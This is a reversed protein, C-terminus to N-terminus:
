LHILQSALWYAVGGLQSLWLMFRKTWPLGRYIGSLLLEEDPHKILYLAFSTGHISWDLDGVWLLMMILRKQNKLCAYDMLSKGKQNLTNPSLGKEFALLLLQEDYNKTIYDIFDQDHISWDIKGSQLLVQFMRRDQREQALMFLTKGDHSKQDVPFENELATALFEYEGTDSVYDVLDKTDLNNWDLDGPLNQADKEFFDDNGIGKFSLDPHNLVPELLKQLRQNKLAARGNSMGGRTILSPSLNGLRSNEFSQSNRRSSLPAVTRVRHKGGQWKKASPTKQGIPRHQGDINFWKQIVQYLRPDYQRLLEKGSNKQKSNLFYFDNKTLYNAFVRVGEAWYEFLSEIAYHKMEPGQFGQTTEIEWLGKSLANQYAAELDFHLSGFGKGDRTTYYNYVAHGIEHVLTSSGTADKTLFHEKRLFIANKDGAHRCFGVVHEHDEFYEHEDNVTISFHERAEDELNEFHYLADDGEMLAKLIDAHNKFVELLVDQIEKRIDKNQPQNEPKFYIPVQYVYSKLNISESFSNEDVGEEEVAFDGFGYSSRLMIGANLFFVLFAFFMYVISM